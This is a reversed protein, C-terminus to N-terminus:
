LSCAEGVWLCSICLMEDRAGGQELSRNCKVKVMIRAEDLEIEIRLLFGIRVVDITGDLWKLELM